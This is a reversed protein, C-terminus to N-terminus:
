EKARANFPLKFLCSSHHLVLPRPVAFSNSHEGPPFTEMKIGVITVSLVDPDQTATGMAKGLLAIYTSVIIFFIFVAFVLM